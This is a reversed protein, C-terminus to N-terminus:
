ILRSNGSLPVTSFKFHGDSSYASDSPKFRLMSTIFTTQHSHLPQIPFHLQAQRRYEHDERMRRWRKKRERKGDKEKQVREKERERQGKRRREGRRIIDAHGLRLLKELLPSKSQKKWFTTTKNTNYKHWSLDQTNQLIKHSWLKKTSYTSPSFNIELGSMVRQPPSPEFCWSVLKRGRKAQEGGGEGESGTREGGDEREKFGERGGCGERESVYHRHQNCNGPLTSQVLGCECPSDDSPSSCSRTGCRQWCRRQVHVTSPCQWSWWWWPVAAPVWLNKGGWGEACGTCITLRLPGHDTGPSFYIKLRFLDYDIRPSFYIPGYVWIHVRSNSFVSNSNKPCSLLTHM